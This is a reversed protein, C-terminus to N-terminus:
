GTSLGYQLLHYSYVVQNFQSQMAPSVPQPNRQFQQQWQPQTMATGAMQGQSSMSAYQGGPGRPQQQGSQSVQPQQQQYYQQQSVTGQQWQGSQQTVM